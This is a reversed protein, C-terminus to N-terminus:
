IPPHNLDKLSNLLLCIPHQSRDPVIQVRATQDTHVCAPFREAAQDSIDITSLMMKHASFIKADFDSDILEHFYSELLVPAFPRFKERFKVAQNIKDHTKDGIPSALISRSGLSRPGWEMRGQVWGIIKGSVIDAAAREYLENDSSMLCPNKAGFNLLREQLNNRDVATGLYMLDNVADQDKFKNNSRFIVKNNDQIKSYNMHTLYAAGLAGGADGCAPQMKIDGYKQILKSNAKCNLAVGGSYLLQYQPYKQSVLKFVHDITNETLLQISAALNAYKAFLDSPLMDYDQYGLKKLSLPPIGIIDELSDKYLYETSGSLDFHDQSISFPCSLNSNLTVQKALVDIYTPKGYSALGMVKYEGENVEFDLYSTIAAYLLGLSNPISTSGVLEIEGNEHKWISTSAFEGVGDIVIAIAKKKCGILVSGAHSLHHPFYKVDACKPLFRKLALEPNTFFEDKKFRNELIKYPSSHYFQIIRAAKIIPIEYFGASTIDNLSIDLAECAKAMARMPFAEDNKIRSFREEQAAFAIKENSDILCIASDHFGYSVGLTFAGM